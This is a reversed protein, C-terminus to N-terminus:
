RGLLAAVRSVLTKGRLRLRYATANTTTWQKKYELHEGGFEIRRDGRAHSDRLWLTMLVKGPSYKAYAGDYMGIIVYVCTGQVLNYDFALPIDGAYLVNLDLQGNRAMEHAIARYFAEMQGVTYQGEQEISDAQWSKHLVSSMADLAAPLMTMADADRLRVHRVAGVERDLKNHMRRPNKWFVPSHARYVVEWDPDLTLYPQENFPTLSAPVGQARLQEVITTLQGDLGDLKFFDLVDYHRARARYLVLLAAALHEPTAAVLPVFRQVNYDVTRLCRKRWLKGRTSTERLLCVAVTEGAPTVFRLPRVREGARCFVRLGEELWVLTSFVNAGPARAHLAAWAARFDPTLPFADEVLQLDLTKM